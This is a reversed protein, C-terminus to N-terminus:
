RLEDKHSLFWHRHERMAQVNRHREEQEPDPQPIGMAELQAICERVRQLREEHTM